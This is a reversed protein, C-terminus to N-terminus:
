AGVHYEEGRPNQTYEKIHKYFRAQPNVSEEGDAHYMSEIAMRENPLLSEWTQRSYMQRLRAEAKQMCYAFLQEAQFKTLALKQEIVRDFDPGHEGFAESWERRASARQMNFGIGVHWAGKFLYANLKYGQAAAFLERRYQRYLKVHEPNKLDLLKLKERYEAIDRAIIPM